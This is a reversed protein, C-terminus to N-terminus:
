LRGSIPLVVKQVRSGSLNVSKLKDCKDLPLTDPLEVNKFTLNELVPYNGNFSTLKFAKIGSPTTNNDIHIETGRELSPLSTEYSGLMDLTKFMHTQYIGQYTQETPNDIIVDYKVDKKALASTAVIGSKNNLIYYPIGKEGGAAGYGYNPYFDQYPTFKLAIKMAKTGGGVENTSYYGQLNTQAYGNLFNLRETM